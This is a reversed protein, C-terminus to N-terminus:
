KIDSHDQAFLSLYKALAYIRNRNYGTIERLMNEDLM